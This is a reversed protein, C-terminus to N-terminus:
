AARRKTARAGTAGETTSSETFPTTEQEPEKTLVRVIGSAGLRFLVAIGVGAVLARLITAEIGIDHFYGVTAVVMAIAAGALKGISDIV